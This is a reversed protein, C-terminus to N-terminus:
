YRNIIKKIDEVNKAEHLLVMDEDSSFLEALASITEIHSHKDPAALMVIVDVPDNDASDFSVGKELKLLSLGLGQAGEEPRAHPMALGPALVYYPGLTSHQQMIATLYDPTIVGAALLPQACAELAQRWNEMKPLVRITDDHLWRNLM